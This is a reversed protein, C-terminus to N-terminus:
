LFLVNAVVAGNGVGECRGARGPYWAQPLSRDIIWVANDRQTGQVVGNEMGFSIQLTQM